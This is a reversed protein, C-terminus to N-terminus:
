AHRQAFLVRKTDQVYFTGVGMVQWQNSSRCACGEPIYMSAKSELGFFPRVFLNDNVLRALFRGQMLCLVNHLYRCGGIGCSKTVLAMAVGRYRVESDAIPLMPPVPRMFEPEFSSLSLSGEGEGLSMEDLTLPQLNLFADSVRGVGCSRVLAYKKEWCDCSNWLFVETCLTLHGWCAYGM